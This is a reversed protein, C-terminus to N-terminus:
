LPVNLTAKFNEANTSKVKQAKGFLDAIAEFETEGYGNSGREDILRCYGAQLETIDTKEEDTLDYGELLEVAVTMNTAIYPPDSFDSKWTAIKFGDIVLNNQM